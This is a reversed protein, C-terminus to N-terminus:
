TLHLRLFATAQEIIAPPCSHAHDHFGTDPPPGGAAEAIAAIRGWAANVGDEPMHRDGRGSRFFLPRDAALGALDPFDARHDIGPHLFSFASHGQLLPAGPRMMSERTAMWSVSAAAAVHPSIAALQWARYGGFSFGFCGIREADIGPQRALWAAAQADEAAIIGALSWGLAIANAALAQQAPYGGAFRAGFGIADLCLVAFGADRLAEAVAIGGYLQDRAPQSEPLDFLKQWGSEFAGGHEHLLLVAPHPGPGDPLLFRGDAEAGTAFRLRIATGVAHGEAPSDHPPLTALWASRLRDHWPAFEDGKRFALDHDLGALRDALFPPLLPDDSPANTNM